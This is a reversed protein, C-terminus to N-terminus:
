LQWRWTKICDVENYTKNVSVSPSQEQRYGSMGKLQQCEAVNKVKHTGTGCYGFIMGLCSHSYNPYQQFDDQANLKVAVVLSAVILYFNFRCYKM